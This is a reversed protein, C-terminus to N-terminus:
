AGPAPRVRVRRVRVGLNTPYGRLGDAAPDWPDCAIGLKVVPPASEGLFSKPVVVRHEAWEQSVVVSTLPKGDIRIEARVPAHGAPRKAAMTLELETDAEPAFSPAYLEARGNTWRYWGERGRWASHFGSILGFAHYGIEIAHEKM